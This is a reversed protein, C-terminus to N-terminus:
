LSQQWKFNCVKKVVPVLQFHLLQYSNLAGPNSAVEYIATCKQGGIEMNDLGPKSIGNCLWCSDHMEKVCLPDVCKTSTSFHVMACWPHYLHKCSALTGARIPEFSLGCFSCGGVWICSQLDCADITTTLQSPLPISLSSKPLGRQVKRVLAWVGTQHCKAFKLNEEIKYIKSTEGDSLKSV